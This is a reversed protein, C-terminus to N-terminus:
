RPRSLMARMIFLSITSPKSRVFFSSSSVLLFGERNQSGHTMAFALLAGEGVLVLAGVVLISWSRCVSRAPGYAVVLKLSLCYM